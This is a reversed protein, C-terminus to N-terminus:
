FVRSQQKQTFLSGTTKKQRIGTSTQNPMRIEYLLLLLFIASMVLCMVKAQPGGDNNSITNHPEISLHQYRYWVHGNLSRNEYSTQNLDKRDVDPSSNSSQSDSHLVTCQTVTNKLTKTAESFEKWNTFLFFTTRTTTKQIERRKIQRHSFFFLISM